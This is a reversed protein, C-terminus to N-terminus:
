LITLQLFKPLVVYLDFSRNGISYSGIGSASVANGDSSVPQQQSFIKLTPFLFLILYLKKM